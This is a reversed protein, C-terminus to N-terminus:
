LAFRDLWVVIKKSAFYSCLWVKFYDKVRISEITKSQDKYFAKNTDVPIYLPRM